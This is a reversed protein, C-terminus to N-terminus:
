IRSEGADLHGGAVSAGQINYLTWEGVETMGEVNVFGSTPNPYVRVNLEKYEKQGVTNPDLVNLTFGTSSNKYIINGLSDVGIQRCYTDTCTQNNTDVASVTVCVNYTGSSQFTHSPFAQNSTSGDGFDWQYSVTYTPHSPSPTSSNYINVNTASSNMSDLYYRARCSPAPYNVNITNVFTDTCFVAQTLSDKAYSILTVQYNGLQSYTHVPNEQSSGNGDGFYWEYSQITYPYVVSGAQSLNQFNIENINGSSPYHTFYTSCTDVAGARVVKVISDTCQLVGNQNLVVNLQVLYTGATSYTHTPNATTGS